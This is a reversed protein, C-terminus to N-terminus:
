QNFNELSKKYRKGFFDWMVLFLGTIIPGAIFGVIGFIILGGMSAMFMIAPHMGSKNGDLRPRIINQNITIAGAGVILIILGAVINGIAIQYIAMPVIISNAGVIPIISLFTMMMGWFFPSHIGLIAFLIGGFSGEIVGILLSNFVIGDTVQELKAFLMREESDKLPILYQIREVLADSDIFLYYLLFMIIFLHFFMLGVNIFTKQVMNLVFQTITSLATTTSDAVKDWDIHDIANKITPNTSLQDPIHDIYYKIDTWNNTLLSYGQGLEKTIMIAIISIPIVIVLIVLLITFLAARKKNGKFRKFLFAFPKKFLIALVITLFIDVLFPQIISFFGITILILLFFFFIDQLDLKMASKKM